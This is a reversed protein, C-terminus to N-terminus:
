NETDETAIRETPEVVDQRTAEQAPHSLRVHAAFFFAMEGLQKPNPRFEAVCLSCKYYGSFKGNRDTAASLYAITGMPLDVGPALVNGTTGLGSKLYPRM